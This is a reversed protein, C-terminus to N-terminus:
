LYLYLFSTVYHIREKKGGSGACSKTQHQFCWQHGDTIFRGIVVIFCRGTSLWVVVVCGRCLWSVFMHCFCIVSCLLVAVVFIFRSVVVCSFFYFVHSFCLWSSNVHFFVQSFMCVCLGMFMCVCLVCLVCSCMFVCSCVHVCMFVCSCVHVCM